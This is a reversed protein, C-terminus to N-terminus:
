KGMPGYGCSVRRLDVLGLRFVQDFLDKGVLPLHPRSPPTIPPPSWTRLSSTHTHSLVLVTRVLALHTHSLSLAMLPTHSLSLSGDPVCPGLAGWPERKGRDEHEGGDGGQACSEGRM